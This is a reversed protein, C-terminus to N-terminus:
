EKDVKETLFIHRERFPDAEAASTRDLNMIMFAEPAYTPWEPLGTGNPNGTKAFNTWYQGMQDSLKRDEPRWVAEPRCDLTGFVYEIDDSHFAGIAAPHFKDGPSGLSFLYRYTPAHGTKVHAELWLWTSHAIFRDGALDIASQVAQEDTTAPYLALVKDSNAGFDQEAQAKFSEVTTKRPSMVVRAQMEGANWGALLPIQAQKGAAYINPVSDPLFYGDVDPGFRPAPQTKSTAAKILDAASIQRLKAIDTTGFAAEGFKADRAETLERSDFGLSASSFAGGSEGIAKHILGKSLPSAMQSSVSFSGASEGFLTVNGPDGGFASINSHVWQLAANQDLLGYNGSAHHSSEATLGPHAYFGLIGLRYNMTVVIVGRQALFEGDQRAESTTGATYGGGYIWVMVPLKGPKANVPTWVNLTLCDESEGPDHYTMDPFSSTQVCRFGFDTTKRVGQWKAAPQPEKWRLDGVPPAAYPIGKFTRIQPSSALSGQVKGTATKVILPDSAFASTAAAILGLCTALRISRRSIPM